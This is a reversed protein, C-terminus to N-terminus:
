KNRHTLFHMTFCSVITFFATWGCMTGVAAWYGGYDWGLYSSIYRPVHVQVFESGNLVAITDGCDPMPSCYDFQSVAIAETSRGFPSVYFAWLWGRPAKDYTITTGAFLISITVYTSQVVGILAPSAFLTCSLLASMVVMLDLWLVAFFYRWFAVATMTFGSMFYLPIQIIIADIGCLVVECLFSSLVFITPTYFGFVHERYVYNRAAKFVPVAILSHSIGNFSISNARASLASLASTQTTPTLDFYLLGYLVGVIAMMMFRGVLGKVNRVYSLVTRYFVRSFQM